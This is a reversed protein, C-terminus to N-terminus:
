APSRGYNRHPYRFPLPEAGTPVVRIPAETRRGKILSRVQSVWLSYQEPRGDYELVLHAGDRGIRAAGIYQREVDTIEINPDLDGEILDLLDDMYVYSDGGPLRLLIRTSQRVAEGAVPPAQGKVLRPRM